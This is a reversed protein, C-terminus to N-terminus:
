LEDKNSRLLPIEEKDVPIDFFILIGIMSLLYSMEEKKM